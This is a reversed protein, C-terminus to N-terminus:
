SAVQSASPLLRLKTSTAAVPSSRVVAYVTRDASKNESAAKDRRNIGAPKKGLRIEVAGGYQDTRRNTIEHLFQQFLYVLGGQIQVGDFDADHAVQAAHRFDLVAQKIDELSM